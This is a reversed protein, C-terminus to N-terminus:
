KMMVASAIKKLRQGHNTGKIFPQGNVVMVCDNNGGLNIAEVCSISILVKAVEETTLGIGATDEQSHAGQVVYFVIEKNVTIGIATRPYRETAPQVIGNANSNNYLQSFSEAQWSNIIDGDNILVPGGGIATKASFTEGAEPQNETDTWVSQYTYHNAFNGTVYTYCADFTGDETELFAARTVSHIEMGRDYWYNMNYALVESNSVALNQINYITNNEADKTTPFFGGNVLVAPCKGDNTTIAPPLLTQSSSTTQTLEGDGNMEMADLTACWADWSAGFRTDAVALYGTVDQNQIKEHKYIKIYDPLEGNTEVVDATINTWESGLHDSISAYRELTIEPMVLLSSRYVTNAKDTEVIYIKGEYDTVTIKFGKTFEVPPLTIIFNTAKNSYLPAGEGNCILTATTSADEAMKISPEGNNGHATVVAPGSLKENNKGTIKVSVVDMDGKLQLKIGGCVNRFALDTDESVAVMPLAGVGFSNARYTQKAPLVVDLLYTGNEKACTVDSSYPYYGVIHDWEDGLVRDGSLLYEFEASSEGIFRDTLQYMNSTASKLFASICDGGYWLVRNDDSMMTKTMNSQEITGSLIINQVGSDAYVTSEIDQCSAFAFVTAFLLFIIKKMIKPGNFIVM